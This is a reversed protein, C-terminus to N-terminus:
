GNLKTFSRDSPMFLLKLGKLKRNGHMFLRVTPHAFYVSYEDGQISRKVPRPHAYVKDTDSIQLFSM